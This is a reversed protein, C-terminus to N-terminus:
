TPSRPFSALAPVFSVVFVAVILRLRQEGHYVLAHGSLYLYERPCLLLMLMAGLNATFEGAMMTTRLVEEPHPLEVRARQTRRQSRKRAVLSLIASSIMVGTCTSIEITFREGLDRCFCM